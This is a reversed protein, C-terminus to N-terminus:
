GSFEGRGIVLYRPLFKPKARAPDAADVILWLTKMQALDMTKRWREPNGLDFGDIQSVFVFNLPEVLTALRVKAWPEHLGHWVM